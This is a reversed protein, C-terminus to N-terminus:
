FIKKLVRKEFVRLRHEEWFTLSWTDCGYLVVPLIISKHIRIKINLYSPITHVPDFQSLIPVLPSRNHVRDHVKPNRLIVPFKRFPQV